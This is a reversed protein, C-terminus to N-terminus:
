GLCRLVGGVRAGGGLVDVLDEVHSCGRLGVRRDAGDLEDAPVGHVGGGVVVSTWMRLCRSVQHVTSHSSWPLTRRAAACAGSSSTGGGGRPPSRKRSAARM